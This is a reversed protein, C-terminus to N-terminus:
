TVDRLRPRLERLCQCSKQQGRPRRGPEWVDARWQDNLTQITNDASILCSSPIRLSLSQRVSSDQYSAGTRDPMVGKKVYSSCATNIGQIHAIPFELGM